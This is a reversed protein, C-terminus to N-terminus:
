ASKERPPRKERPTERPVLTPNVNDLVVDRTIEVRAVDDRSPVEFMVQQLVEEMIARLGRAGTGRLLAQDAIAAVAGDDFELEVGDIQFMRQYQKVLANKPETLIRVLAEQDLRAVAAVVPLRGIFEPILGYKQLDEPRVESFLDGEDVSELLPAGFGVVRKRARAAIIDDLGSFAGAVIFLVNTTDIQIFEQHPHKRGGQPPVSATTGEIIKLLAQQVGEGSVDRTISPNESKRAIKDIEDIYIIGSEAKKVDYDAAQILKLLINEVDEGVYGAETLATADAIAFPVNLMRALTQALYTKGTGTPGVLLINSKAIEIQDDASRGAEGAQVRKYHNYVAVSLARKASEQGIIYQELFEFIEKPKPLEVLGVETAEALEEEIIENCLEICEDCIYVGPGAILKKVQKQSKGCFSCKLLDAGDGIRAM